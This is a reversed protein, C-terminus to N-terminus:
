VDTFFAEIAKIPNQFVTQILPSIGTDSYIGLEAYLNNEPTTMAQKFTQLFKDIDHRTLPSHKGNRYKVVIANGFVPFRLYGAEILISTAFSNFNANKCKKRVIIDIGFKRLKPYLDGMIIYKGNVIKCLDTVSNLKDGPIIKFTRNPYLVITSM